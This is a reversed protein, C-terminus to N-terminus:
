SRGKPLREMSATFSTEAELSAGAYLGTGFTENLDAVRRRVNVSAFAYERGFL